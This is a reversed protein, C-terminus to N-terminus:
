QAPVRRISTRARSRLRNGQHHAGGSGGSGGFAGCQGYAGKGGARYGGLVKKLRVSVGGRLPQQSKGRVINGTRLHEGAGHEGPGGRDNRTGYGLRHM